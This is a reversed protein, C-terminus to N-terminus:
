EKDTDMLYSRNIGAVQNLLPLNSMNAFVELDKKLCRGGAGRGGKHIVDLHNKGIWKRKYMIDKVTEYNADVKKAFDFVQNAYVVKTSYFANIAWKSLEATTNDTTVIETGRYRSKYIGEVDERYSKQKAGIVVVDPNNTDDKWTKETLFEPNSVISNINLLSMLHNAFGPHVTSRIIFVNQRNYSKIQGILSHIAETNYRDNKVDTPLCVFIYRCEAAEKLTVNSRKLDFYKDIGFAKRTANGVMGLGGLVVANM